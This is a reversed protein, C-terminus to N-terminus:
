PLRNPARIWVRQIILNSWFSSFSSFSFFLFLISGDLEVIEEWVDEYLLHSFRSFMLSLKWTACDNVSCDPSCFDETRNMLYWHDKNPCTKVKMDWHLELFAAVIKENEFRDADEVDVMWIAHSIEKIRKKGILLLSIIQRSHRRYM